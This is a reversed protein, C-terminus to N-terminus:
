KGTVKDIWSSWTTFWSSFGSSLATTSDSNSALGSKSGERRSMRWLDSRVLSFLLLTTATIWTVVYKVLILLNLKLIYLKGLYM